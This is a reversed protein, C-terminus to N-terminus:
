VKRYFVLTSDGYSKKQELELGDFELEKKPPLSLIFLGGKKVNATLKKLQTIKIQDYPPDCIVIDFITTYNRESWSASNAKTLRIKDKLDLSKINKEIVIAANRDVETILASKAGRSIAEFAVAGSGGYADFVSLGDVDGLINFLAGRMKESMPHTKHGKPTDINRGKLSGAIIRMVM